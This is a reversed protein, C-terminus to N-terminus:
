RYVRNTEEAIIQDYVTEELDTCGIIFISLTVFLITTRKKLYKM